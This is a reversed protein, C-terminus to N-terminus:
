AGIIRAKKGKKESASMELAVPAAGALTLVLHEEGVQLYASGKQLSQVLSELHRLAQAAPLDAKYSIENKGM